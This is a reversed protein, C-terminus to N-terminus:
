VLANAYETNVNTQLTEWLWQMERSEYSSQYGAKVTSNVWNCM